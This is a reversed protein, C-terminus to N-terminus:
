LSPLHSLCYISEMFVHAGSNLDGATIHFPFSPHQQNGRLTARPAAFAAMGHVSQEATRALWHDGPETLFESTKFISLFLTSLSPLSINPWLSLETGAPLASAVSLGWPGTNEKGTM